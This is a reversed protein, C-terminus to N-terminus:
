KKDDMPAALASAPREDGQTETLSYAYSNKDAKIASLAPLYAGPIRSARKGLGAISGQVIQEMSGKMLDAYDQPDLMLAGNPYSGDAEPAITKAPASLTAKMTDCARRTLTQVATALRVDQEFNALRRDEETANAALTAPQMRASLIGTATQMVNALAPKLQESPLKSSLTGILTITASELAEPHAAAFTALLEGAKAPQALAQTELKQVVPCCATCTQAAKDCSAKDKNGALVALPTGLAIVAALKLFAPSHSKM